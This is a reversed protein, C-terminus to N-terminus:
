KVSFVTGAKIIQGELQIVANITYTGRIKMPFDAAYHFMGGGEMSHAKKRIRKKDPLIVEIEISANKIVKMEPNNMLSMIIFHSSNKGAPSKRGGMSKAMEEYRARDYLEFSAQINGSVVTRVTGAQADDQMGHSDMDHSGHNGGGHSHQAYLINSGFSLVLMLIFNSIKMSQNKM